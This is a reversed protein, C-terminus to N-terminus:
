QTIEIKGTQAAEFSKGVFTTFTRTKKEAIIEQYIEELNIDNLIM